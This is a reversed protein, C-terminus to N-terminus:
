GTAASWPRVATAGPPSARPTSSRGRSTFAASSSTTAATRSTSSSRARTRAWSSRTRRITTSASSTASATSRASATCARDVRRAHLRHQQPLQRRDDLGADPVARGPVRPRAGQGGELLPIFVDEFFISTATWRCSRTAARRLRVGGGSGAAGRRRVDRLMFDHKKSACSTTTTCCTTSTPSTPSASARRRWPRWCAGRARRTSRSACTSRTPSRISCRRPRCTPRRAPAAGGLDSHEPLGDRARVGALGRHRPRSRRRPGRAADAGAAGRHPREDEHVEARFARTTM